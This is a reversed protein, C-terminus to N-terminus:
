LLELLYNGLLLIKLRGGLLETDERTKKQGHTQGNDVNPSPVGYKSTLMFFHLHNDPAPAM